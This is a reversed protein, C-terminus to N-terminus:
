KILPPIYFWHLGKRGYCMKMLRKSWQKTEVLMLDRVIADVTITNILIQFKYQIPSPLWKDKWVKINMGNGVCWRVGQNILDKAAIISKWSFSSHHKTKAEMVNRDKFYKEKLITAVLTNPRSLVWWMQKALMVLNFANSRKLYHM